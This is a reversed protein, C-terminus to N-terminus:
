WPKNQDRTGICPFLNTETSSNTNRRMQGVDNLRLEWYSLFEIEIEAWEQLEWFHDKVVIVVSYGLNFGNIGINGESQTM